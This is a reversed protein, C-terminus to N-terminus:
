LLNCHKRFKYTKTFEKYDGNFQLTLCLIPLAEIEDALFILNNFQYRFNKYMFAIEKIYLSKYKPSLGKWNALIIKLSELRVNYNFPAILHAKKIYDYVKDNPGERMSTVSALLMWTSAWSRRYKLSQLLLNSASDLYISKDVSSLNGNLYLLDVYAAFHLYHPHTNEISLARQIAFKAKDAQSKFIDSDGSSNKMNEVINYASFYWANARMSKISCYCLFITIIMLLLAQSYKIIHKTKM